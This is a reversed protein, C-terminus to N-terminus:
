APASTDIVKPRLFNRRTFEDADANISRLPLSREARVILPRKLTLRNHRLQLNFCRRLSIQIGAEKGRRTHDVQQSCPATRHPHPRLRVPRRRSSAISLAIRLTSQPQFFVRHRLFNRRVVPGRLAMNLSIHQNECSSQPLKVHLSRSSRNKFTCFMRHIDISM